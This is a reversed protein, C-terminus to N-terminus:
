LHDYFECIYAAFPVVKIRQISRKGNIYIEQGKSRLKM